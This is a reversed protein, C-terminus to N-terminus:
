DIKLDSRRKPDVPKTKVGSDKNTTMVPSQPNLKAAEADASAKERADAEASTMLRVQMPQSLQAMLAKELGAIVKPDTIPTGDSASWKSDKLSAGQDKFGPAGLSEWDVSDPRLAYTGTRMTAPLSSSASSSSSSSSSSSPSHKREWSLIAIIIIHGIVSAAIAPKMMSKDPQYTAASDKIMKFFDAQAAPSAKEITAYFEPKNKILWEQTTIGEARAAVIDAPTIKPKTATTGATAAARAEAAARVLAEDADRSMAQITENWSRRSGGKGLGKFFDFANGAINSFAGEEVPPKEDLKALIEAMIVNLPKNQM